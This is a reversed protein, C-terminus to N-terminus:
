QKFRRDVLNFFVEASEKESWQFKEKFPKLYSYAAERSDLNAIRDLSENYTEMDGGFLENIFLFREHIGIANNLDSIPKNGLDGGVTTDDKASRKDKVYENTVRPKEGKTEPSPKSTQEDQSFLDSVVAKEEAVQSLDPKDEDSGSPKAIMRDAEDTVITNTPTTPEMIGFGAPRKPLAAPKVDPEEEVEEEEEEIVEPLAEDESRLFKLVAIKEYLEGSVSLLTDLDRSGLEEPKHIRNAQKQLHLTLERIEGILDNVEM